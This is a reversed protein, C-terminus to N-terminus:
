LLGPPGAEFGQGYGGSAGPSPRDACNEWTKSQGERKGLGRITGLGIDEKDAVHRKVLRLIKSTSASDGQNWNMFAMETQMYGNCDVTEFGGVYWEYRPLLSVM